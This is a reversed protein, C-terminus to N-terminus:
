VLVAQPAPQFFESLKRNLGEVVSLDSGAKMVRLHASIRNTNEHFFVTISSGSRTVYYHEQVGTLATKIFDPRYFDLNSNEHEGADEILDFLRAAQAKTFIM